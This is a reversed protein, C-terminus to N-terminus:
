ETLSVRVAINPAPNIDSGFERNLLLTRASDAKGLVLWERRCEAFGSLSAAASTRGEFRLRQALFHSGLVGAPTLAEVKAATPIPDGLGIIGSREPLNGGPPRGSSRSRTASVAFMGTAM